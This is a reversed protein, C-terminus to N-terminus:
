LLEQFAQILEPVSEKPIDLSVSSSWGLSNTITLHICPIDKPTSPMLEIGHLAGKGNRGRYGDPVPTKFNIKKIM